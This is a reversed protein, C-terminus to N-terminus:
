QDEQDEDSVEGVIMNQRSINLLVGVSVMSILLSSGGSSIFPLTLGTVPLLGVVVGMNILAPISIMATLGAALTRGFPERTRLCVRIGFFTFLIFMLIVTLTGILGLEEGIIAFIFDTHAEPLYSYKQVSNGLGLGVINGSGLAILSQNVQFNAADLESSRNLFAFLRERRYDELFMYGVTILGGIFTIGILHGLRVGGAYMVVFVLVWIVVATGLDPELFILVTIALLVLFGPLFLDKARLTRSYRRNLNDAFFLILAVKAIESPQINFFWLNIWRKAGGIEEAIGPILVLALLVIAVLIAAISIRRYVQYNIKSVIIMAAISLVWWLIQRRFYWYPDGFYREGIVTSASSIMIIGLVSLIFVLVFLVYFDVNIKLINRRDVTM